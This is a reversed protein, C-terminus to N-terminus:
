DLLVIGPLGGVESLRSSKDILFTWYLERVFITYTNSSCRSRTWLDGVYRECLASAQSDADRCLRSSEELRLQIDEYLNMLSFLKINWGDDDLWCIWM